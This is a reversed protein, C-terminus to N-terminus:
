KKITGINTNNCLVNSNPLENTSCCHIEVKEKMSHLNQLLKDTNSIAMVVENPKFVRAGKDNVENIDFTTFFDKMKENSDEGLFIGSTTQKLPEDRKVLVYEGPLHINELSM